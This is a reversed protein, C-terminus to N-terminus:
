ARIAVRAALWGVIMLAFDVVLWARLQETDSMSYPVTYLSLGSLSDPLSVFILASANNVLHVAIAPGLTGARATLDAM